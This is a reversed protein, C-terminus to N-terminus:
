APLEEVLEKLAAIEQDANSNLLSRIDSKGYFATLASEDTNIATGTLSAGAFVGGKRSYAVINSFTGEGGPMAKGYEGATASIDTGLTFKGQRLRNESAEDMFFLVLDQQEVGVQAGISGGIMDVFAANSWKGSVTRCSAVGDGARGGIVLAAKTVEPFIAVCRAKKLLQQPVGQKNSVLERYVRTSSKLLNTLEDRSIKEGSGMSARPSDDRDGRASEASATSVALAFCSGLLFSSKILSKLMFVKSM